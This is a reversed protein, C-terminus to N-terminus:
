QISSRLEDSLAITRGAPPVCNEIHEDGNAHTEQGKRTLTRHPGIFDTSDKQCKTLKAHM